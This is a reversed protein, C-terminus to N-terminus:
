SLEKKILEVLKSPAYDTKLLYKESKLSLGKEELERNTYNTLIFVLLDKTKKQKRIKELIEIGNMDPLILDLLVLDPMKAEGKEIEEVRRIAEQGLIIPEVEFSAQELATKYVDITPLDDEIFLIMKKVM